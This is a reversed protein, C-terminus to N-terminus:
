LYIPIYAGPFYEVRTLNGDFVVTLVDFFVELGPPLLERRRSHLYAKAARALRERKRYNVNLEPRAAAPATRSKVEVIHLENGKLSIIDIELHGARWNSEIIRHGERRLFDRATEEGKRGVAHKSTKM